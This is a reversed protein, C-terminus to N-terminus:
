REDKDTNATFCLEQSDPSFSIAEPGGLNFAARRLRSRAHPRAAKGGSASLVFLHSRKGDSWDTWHRYLLKEYIHAKVKSKDGQATASPTAHTMRAIPIYTSIFAIWKGDPSWLENDAGTSLSTM